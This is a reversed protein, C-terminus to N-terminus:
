TRADTCVYLWWKCVRVTECVKRERDRAEEQLRSKMKEEEVEDAKHREQMKKEQTVHVAELARLKKKEEVEAEEREMEWAQRRRIQASRLSEREEHARRAAQEHLM